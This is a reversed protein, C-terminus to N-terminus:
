ISVNVSRGLDFLFYTVSWFVTCSKWSNHQLRREDVKVTQYTENEWNKDNM